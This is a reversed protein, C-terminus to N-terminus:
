RRSARRPRTSACRTPSTRAVISTTSTFRARDGRHRGRRLTEVLAITLVDNASALVEGTEPDVVDHALIKGECTSSRCPSASSAPKRSCACTARPSAAAKRSSSRAAPASRSCRPRAACASPCSSAARRRGEQRPLVTNSTSSCTSSTRRERLRARAAPHDGAAQPAPRHARVRLGQRRVRLRAVLRPLPHRAGPVAAQRLQPDQGQRPRLDRGPQPAAPLRDRARHRQCRVHRERDDAAARRPLGGARDRAERALRGAVGQGYVAPAPARAAAGRLHPRAAPMGQRRVGARRPLLVRLRADAHGPIARSRSCARSRPMCAPADCTSTSSPRRRSRRSCGSAAPSRGGAHRVARRAARAVRDLQLFQAYSETQIALLPPVDLIGQRKGFNKRIRKKETFTYAM